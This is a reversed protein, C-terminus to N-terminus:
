DKDQNKRKISTAFRDIAKEAYLLLVSLILIFPIGGIWYIFIISNLDTFYKIWKPEIKLSFKSQLIYQIVSCIAILIFWLITGKKVFQKTKNTNDNNM